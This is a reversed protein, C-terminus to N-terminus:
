LWWKYSQSFMGVSTQVHNQCPANHGWREKIYFFLRSILKNKKNESDMIAARVLSGAETNHITCRINKIFKDSPQKNHQFIIHCAPLNFLNFLTLSQCNRAFGRARHLSYLETNYQLWDSDQWPWNNVIESIELNECVNEEMMGVVPYPYDERRECLEWQYFSKWLNLLRM